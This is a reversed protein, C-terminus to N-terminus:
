CPTRRWWTGRCTTPACSRTTAAISKRRAASSHGAAFRRRGRRQWAPGAPQRHATGAAAAPHAARRQLGPYRLLYDEYAAKAQALQGKRERALGLLEAADVRHQYDQAATVKTLLAIASMWASTRCHRARTPWCSTWRRTPGRKPPRAVRRGGQAAAGTRWRGQREPRRRTTSPWGPADPYRAQASACSSTPKAGRDSIARGAPPVLHRRRRQGRSVYM